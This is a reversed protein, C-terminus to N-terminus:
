NLTKGLFSVLEHIKEKDIYNALFSCISAEFKISEDLKPPFNSQKYTAPLNRNRTLRIMEESGDVCTFRINKRKSHVYESLHGPGCGLDLLQMISQPLLGVFKSLLPIEPTGPRNSMDYEDAYANFVDVAKGVNDRFEQEKLDDFFIYWENSNMM